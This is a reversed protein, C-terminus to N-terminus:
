LKKLLLNMAALAAQQINNARLQGFLYSGSFTGEPTCVAICTTGVPKLPTGGDPGAIGSVAISCDSQMIRRVNQAMAEAVALTVAGETAILPEPIHLLDQKISNAYAVVSGKYWASSGPLSTFRHALYGGTCSEATVLTMGKAQLRAAILSEMSDQGYGFILEPIISKLEDVKQELASTLAEGSAGKASLRLRVIGPQPLYALKIFAPLSDEWASIKEALLSEGMGHTLVTRHLITEPSLAALSPLIHQEMMAKMEFPVGPMSIYIKGGREFRMGPATGRDNPIVSCAEPVLAQQRNLETVPINRRSFIQEIQQFTPPHFVMGCGFYECLTAKTIDDRTPGLGGTILVLDARASAEHLTLLIHGRQDSISTIQGVGIGMSNLQEAMWASNTDVVQGILLEEGITIIEAQM